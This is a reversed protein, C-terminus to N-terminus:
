RRVRNHVASVAPLYLVNAVFLFLRTARDSASGPVDAARAVAVIDGGAFEERTLAPWAVTVPRADGCGTVTVTESAILEGGQGPGGGAYFEVTVPVGALGHGRNTVTAALTVTVPASVAPPLAPTVAFDLLAVDSTTTLVAAYAQYAAGLESIVFPPAMSDTLSTSAFLSGNFPPRSLAAYWASRQVLRNGDSPSGTEPETATLLFDFTADMFSIVTDPPFGNREPLLIGYESVYLPLARYGNAAMWARFRRIQEEFIALDDHESQDIVMGDIADLGPPIDAGWCLTSDQYYDCSRENLIHNHIAWGDAPLPAGFQAAYTALVRDLYELRLPSPQVIAGAFVRAAADREKIWAYLEHYATAYLEPLIDNQYHRRDPENGIIWTAGPHAALATALYPEEPLIAYGGADDGELQITLVYEIGNPRTATTWAWGDVYWGARLAPLDFTAPRQHFVNVGLRCLLNSDDQAAVPATSVCNAAVAIMAGALAWVIRQQLKM